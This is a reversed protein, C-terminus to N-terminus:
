GVYQPTASKIASEEAKKVNELEASAAQLQTELAERQTDLANEKATIGQIEADSMVNSKNIEAMASQYEAESGGNAFVSAARCQANASKMDSQLQKATRQDALAMQQNQVQMLQANLNNVRSQLSMKRATFLAYGMEKEGRKFTGTKNERIQKERRVIIFM